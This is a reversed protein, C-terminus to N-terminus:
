ALRKLESLGGLGMGRWRLIVSEDYLDLVDKATLNGVESADVTYQRGLKTESMLDREFRINRMVTNYTRKSLKGEDRLEKITKM